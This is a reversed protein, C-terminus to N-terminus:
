EYQDPSKIQKKLAEVDELTVTDKQWTEIVSKVAPVGYKVILNIIALIVQTNM